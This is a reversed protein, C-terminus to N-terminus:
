GTGLLTPLSCVLTPIVQQRVLGPGSLARTAWSLELHSFGAVVLVSQSRAGASVAERFVCLGKCELSQHSRQPESHQPQPQDPRSSSFM